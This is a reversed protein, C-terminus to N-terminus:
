NANLDTFTTREPPQEAFGREVRANTVVTCPM